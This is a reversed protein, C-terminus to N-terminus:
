QWLFGVWDDGEPLDRVYAEGNMRIQRNYSTSEDKLSCRTWDPLFLVRGEVFATWVKQLLTRDSELCRFFPQLAERSGFLHLIQADSPSTTGDVQLTTLAAQLDGAARTFDDQAPLTSSWFRCGTPRFATQAWILLFQPVRAIAIETSQFHRLRGRSAVLTRFLMALPREVFNLEPEPGDDLYTYSLYRTPDPIDIVGHGDLYCNKLAALDASPTTFNQKADKFQRSSPFVEINLYLCALHRDERGEFILWM